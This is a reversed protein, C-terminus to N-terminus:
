QKQFIWRHCAENSRSYRPSTRPVMEVCLKKDTALLTVSEWQLERRMVRHLLKSDQVLGSVVGTWYWLCLGCHELPREPRGVCHNLLVVGCLWQRTRVLATRVSQPLGAALLSPWLGCLSGICSLQSSCRTMLLSNCHSDTVRTALKTM